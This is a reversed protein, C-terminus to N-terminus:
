TALHRHRELWRAMARAVVESPHAIDGTILQYVGALAIQLRHRLFGDHPPCEALADELQDKRALM